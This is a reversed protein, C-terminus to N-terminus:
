DKIREWIPKGNKYYFKVKGHNSSDKKTVPIKPINTKKKLAEDWDFNNVLENALRVAVRQYQPDSPNVGTKKLEIDLKKLQSDRWISSTMAEIRKRDVKLNETQAKAQAVKAVAQMLNSSTSINRRQNESVQFQNSIQTQRLQENLVQAQTDALRKVQSTNFKTQDAQLLTLLSKNINATTQSKLNDVQANKVDWDAIQSLNSLGTGYQPPTFTPNGPTPTQMKQSPVFNNKGAYAVAPNIGADKLLKMQNAPSNYENNKEWFALTDKHQRDYMAQQFMMSQSNMNKQSSANIANGAFQAAFPFLPNM